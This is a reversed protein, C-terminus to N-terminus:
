NTNQQTFRILIRQKQQAVTEPIATFGTGSVFYHQGNELDIIIDGVSTSRRGLARYHDSFDNQSMRFAEDLSTQIRTTIYEYEYVGRECFQNLVGNKPHMITFERLKKNELAINIRRVIERACSLSDEFANFGNEYADHSLSQMAYRGFYFGAVDGRRCKCISFAGFEKGSIHPIWIAIGQENGNQYSQIYYWENCEFDGANVFIKSSHVKKPLLQEVTQAVTIAWLLGSNWM